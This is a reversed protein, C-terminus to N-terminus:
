EFARTDSDPSASDGAAYLATCVGSETERRAEDRRDRAAVILDGFSDAFAAALDEGDSTPGIDGRLLTLTGGSSALHNRSSWQMAAIQEGAADLLEGEVALAGIGIPIRPSLPGPVAVGILSSAAATVSNTAEFGTITLRLEHSAAERDNSVAFGGRALRRCMTQSLSGVIRDFREPRTGSEEQVGEVVAARELFIVDIQRIGIPNAYERLPVLRRQGDQLQDYRTLSQGRQLDTAACGTLVVAFALVLGGLRM